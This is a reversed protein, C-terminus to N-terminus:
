PLPRRVMLEARASAELTTRSGVVVEHDGVDAVGIGNGRGHRAHVRHEVDGRHGVRAVRELLHQAAVDDAGVVHQFRAALGADFPQDVGTRDHDVPSVEGVLIGVQGDVLLAKIVYGVVVM